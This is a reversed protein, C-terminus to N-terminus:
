ESRVGKKWESFINGDKDYGIGTWPQGDKWEGTFKNIGIQFLNCTFAGKGHFRNDKCEGVYRQGYVVIYCTKTSICKKAESYAQVALRYDWQKVGRRKHRRRGRNGLFDNSFWALKAALCVVQTRYM